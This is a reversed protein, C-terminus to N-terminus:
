SALEELSSTDAGLKAEARIVRTRITGVLGKLEACLRDMDQVSSAIDIASYCIGGDTRFTQSSIELDRTLFLESMRQLGRPENAGVHLFRTGTDIPQLLIEPFNVAGMSSGTKVFDVLKKAVEAGVHRQAEQTSGGIHPTLIVNEFGRLVTEFPEANSQPEVPFVDVAAGAIHDDDLARALAELDVLSGRANNILFSGPKMTRLEREGILGSTEETDPLHLTVVDS